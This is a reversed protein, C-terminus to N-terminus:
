FSVPVTSAHKTIVAVFFGDMTYTPLIRRANKVDPHFSKGQWSLLGAELNEMDVDCPVIMLADGYRRMMDTLIAENEEPAFSCTSYVLRGGPKLSHVASNLLRKQKRVMEKIKRLSWYAFTQPTDARFRGESSCPADLLVRDFYEPRHRWVGRGDKLYTKVETAGQVKLNDRLKFFRDKVIEVAALEGQQRMMCAMQLTKSGPAATLDLVHEGPQPDLLLPPVMSSLNQIYVHHDRYVQSALLASRQEHGVWKADANWPVDHMELGEDLLRHVVDELSAKLSNVRFSTARPSAMWEVVDAYRQEPVIHKLRELFEGPIM